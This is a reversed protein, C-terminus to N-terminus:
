PVRLTHGRLTVSRRPHLRGTTRVQRPIASAKRVFRRGRAHSPREPAAAGGNRSNCVDTPCTGRPAQAKNTEDTSTPQYCPPGDLLAIIGAQSGPAAVGSSLAPPPGRTGLRSTNTRRRTDGAGKRTIHNKTKKARMCKSVLPSDGANILYLPHSDMARTNPRAYSTRTSFFIRGLQRKIHTQKAAPPSDETSRKAGEKGTAPQDRLHRDPGADKGRNRLSIHAASFNRRTPGEHLANSPRTQTPMWPTHAGQYRHNQHQLQGPKADQSHNYTRNQQPSQQRARRRM